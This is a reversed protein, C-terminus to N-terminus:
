EKVEISLIKITEEPKAQSDVKVLSIKDVIDMGSIVKGFVTHKGLLWDADKVTIFFQSGNTNPGSNAMAIVGRKVPHSKLSEDYKYGLNEYCKKVTLKKIEAMVELQRKNLEEQDKIKLSDIIPLLIVMNFDRQSRILLYQHPGTEENFAILKDLGLATANIEDKFEYGPNGTVDGKPCGGQIMFNKIVRHFTLGDYYNKKALTIFNKVTEPAEQAFLELSVEGLSTKIIVVPDNEYEKEFSQALILSGLILLSILLLSIKQM